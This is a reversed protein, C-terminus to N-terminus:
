HCGILKQKKRWMSMALVLDSTHIQISAAQHSLQNDYKTVECFFTESILQM